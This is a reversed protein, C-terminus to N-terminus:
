AFRGMEFVWALAAVVSVTAVVYLAMVFVLDKMGQDM